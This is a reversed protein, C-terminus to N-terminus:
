YPRGVVPSGFSWLEQEDFEIEPGINVSQENMYWASGTGGSVEFGDFAFLRQHSLANDVRFYRFNNAM